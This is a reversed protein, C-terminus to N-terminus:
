ATDDCASPHEPVSLSDEDCPVVAADVEHVAAAEFLREVAEVARDVQMRVNRSSEADNERIAGASTLCVVAGDCESFPM